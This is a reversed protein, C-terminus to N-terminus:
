FKACEPNTCFEGASASEIKRVTWHRSCAPLASGTFGMRPFTKPVLSRPSNKRTGAFPLGCSQNHEPKMLFPTQPNVPNTELVVASWRRCEPGARNPSQGKWPEGLARYIKGWAAFQQADKQPWCSWFCPGFFCDRRKWKKVERWYLAALMGLTMVSNISQYSLSIKIM